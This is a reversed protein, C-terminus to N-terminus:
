NGRLSKKRDPPLRQEPHILTLESLPISVKGSGGSFGVLATADKICNATRLVRGTKEGHRVRTGRPIEITTCM